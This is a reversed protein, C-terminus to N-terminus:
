DQSSLIWPLFHHNQQLNHPHSRGEDVPQIVPTRRVTISGHSGCSSRAMAKQTVTNTEGASTPCGIRLLRNADTISRLNERRLAM